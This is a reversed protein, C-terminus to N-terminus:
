WRLRLGARLNSGVAWAEVVLASGQWVERYPRPLAWAVLTHIAMTGAFYGVVAGRSPRPGLLPNTEVYQAGVIPPKGKDLTTLMDAALSLVVVSQVVTDRATWDSARAEGGTLVTALFLSTLLTRFM